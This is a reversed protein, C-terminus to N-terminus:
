FLDLCINRRLNHIATWVTIDYEAQIKSLDNISNQISDHISTLNHSPIIHDYILIDNDILLNRNLAGDFFEYVSLNKSYGVRSIIDRASSENSIYIVKKGVDLHMKAITSLLHTKGQGCGAFIVNIDLVDVKM